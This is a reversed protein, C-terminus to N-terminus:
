HWEPLSSFLVSVVSSLDHSVVSFISCHTRDQFLSAVDYQLQARLCACLCVCVCVVCM